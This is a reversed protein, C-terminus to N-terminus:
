RNKDVQWALVDQHIIHSLRVRPADDADDGPGVRFVQAAIEQRPQRVLEVGLDM